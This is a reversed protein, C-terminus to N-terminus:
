HGAHGGGGQGPGTPGAPGALPEPLPLEVSSAARAPELSLRAAAAPEALVFGMRLAVAGGPQLTGTLLPTADATVPQDDGVALQFQEPRYHVPLDSENVLTVPLQVRVADDAGPVAQTMGTLREPTLVHLAEPTGVVATGFSLEVATSAASGPAAARGLEGAVVVAGALAAATISATVLVSLRSGARPRQTPRAAPRAAPRRSPRELLVNPVM